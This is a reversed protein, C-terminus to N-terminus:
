VLVGGGDVVIVEGTSFTQKMLYTYASAVEDADAIHRVPLAAAATQLLQKRAQEPLSDWLPTEVAGPCVLNVRIPALDIALGRTLGEIAGCGAAGVAWGKRPRRGATGSTLVISGGERINPAGYKVSFYAGWFRVDFRKKAAEDSLTTVTGLTLGEGATYALHDFAGLKGFLAKIAEADSLDIVHGETGAPLQSVAEDVRKKQSSGIVIRAGEGAAAKAVGFGIGSSGGMVVVRKGELSAMIEESKLRHFKLPLHRLCLLGVWTGLLGSGDDGPARRLADPHGM